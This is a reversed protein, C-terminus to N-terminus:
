CFVGREQFHPSVREGANSASVPADTQPVMGGGGQQIQPLEVIKKPAQSLIPREIPNPADISRQPARAPMSQPTQKPSEVAKPAISSGPSTSATTATQPPTDKISGGKRSFFAFKDRRPSKIPLPPSTSTAADLEKQLRELDKRKQEELLMEPTVKAPRPQEALPKQMPRM